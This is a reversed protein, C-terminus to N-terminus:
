AAAVQGPCADGQFREWNARLLRRLQSIRPSSLGFRRAAGGTSEGMALTKAIRRDRVSLSRLWAAVDIRAAAIDAPGAHRDEVLVERWEGKDNDFRDLREVLIGSAAHAYPSTVDNLNPKTGVQRGDLVQRIAYNALPTAYAIDSKGRRVLRAFACYANALVEQVLEQKHEPRLRRFAVSAQSSILPLMELFRDHHQQEISPCPKQVPAIM